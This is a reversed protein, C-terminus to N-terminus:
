GTQTETRGESQVRELFRAMWKCGAYNPVIEKNGEFTDKERMEDNLLVMGMNSAESALRLELNKRPSGLPPIAIDAWGDGSWVQLWERTTGPSFSGAVSGEEPITWSSKKELKASPKM